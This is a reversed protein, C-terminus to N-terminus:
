QKWRMRMYFISLAVVGTIALSYPYQLILDNTFFRLTIIYTITVSIFWTFIILWIPRGNFTAFLRNTKIFYPLEM